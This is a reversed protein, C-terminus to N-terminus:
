GLQSADLQHSSVRTESQSTEWEMQIPIREVLVVGRPLSTLPLPLHRLRPQQQSCSSALREALLPLVTPSATYSPNSCQAEGFFHSLFRASLSIM